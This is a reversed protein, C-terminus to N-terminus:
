LQSCNKLTVQKHPRYLLSEAPSTVCCVTNGYGSLYWPLHINTKHLSVYKGRVWFVLTLRRMM